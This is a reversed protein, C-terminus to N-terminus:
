AQGPRDRDGDHDPDHRTRPRHRAAARRHTSRAGVCAPRQRHTRRRSSPRAAARAAGRARHSRRHRVAPRAARCHAGNSAAPRGGTGSSALPTVPCGRARFASASPLYSATPYYDGMVARERGPQGVRTISQAFGPDALMHRYILLGQSTPGWPLWTVGCQARANTPRDAATSVVITYNGAADRVIQDDPLCAIVRQSAPDYQCFSFYRLQEGSPMVPEGGRTDAFTPARGHIVILPGYGRSTASFVYSIDKNSYFGAGQSAPAKDAIPEAAAGTPNDLVIEKFSQQLNVFLTWNPPSQGPYAGLIPLPGGDNAAIQQNVADLTPLTTSQCPSGGGGSAGGAPELTVQPLGVGGDLGRGGDPLYVRYWLQGSFNPSGTGSTGSYMTNPARQTPPAGFDLYATYSRRRATRDAGPQYPNTSGPDPSVQVDSLADIPRAAPDYVNFSMYRSHPYTGSIRLRAGPVANYTVVWYTANTDLLLANTTTSDLRTFALQCTQDVGQAQATAAAGALAGLVIAAVAAATGAVTRLRQRLRADMTTSM